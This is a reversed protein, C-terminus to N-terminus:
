ETLEGGKSVRQTISNQTATNLINEEGEEVGTIRDSTNEREMNNGYDIGVNM